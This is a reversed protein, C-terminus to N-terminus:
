EIENLKVPRNEQFSKKAALGIRLSELGDIGSVPITTNDILSDIFNKIELVYAEAYRELFFHMPLSSEVAKENYLIHNDKIINNGQVMGKSGFVELRQDYGYSAKRSNDIVAM